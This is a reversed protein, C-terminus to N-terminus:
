QPPLWTKHSRGNMKLNLRFPSMNSFMLTHEVQFLTWRDHEDRLMCKFIVLNVSTKPKLQIQSALPVEM